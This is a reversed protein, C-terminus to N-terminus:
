TLEWDIGDNDGADAEEVNGNVEKSSDENGSILNPIESNTNIQLAESTHLYTTSYIITIVIIVIFSKIRHSLLRKWIIKGQKM